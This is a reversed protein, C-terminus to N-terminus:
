HIQRAAESTHDFGLVITKGIWLRRLNYFSGFIQGYRMAIGDPKCHTSCPEFYENGSSMKHNSKFLQRRYFRGDLSAKIKRSAHLHMQGAIHMEAFLGNCCTSNCGSQDAHLLADGPACPMKPDPLHERAFNCSHLAGDIKLVYHYFTWKPGHLVIVVKSRQWEPFCLHFVDEAKGSRQWNQTKQRFPQNKAPIHAREEVLPIYDDLM